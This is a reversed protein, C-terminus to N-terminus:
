AGARAPSAWGPRLRFKLSDEERASPGTRGGGPTQAAGTSRVVGCAIWAAASADGGGGPRPAVSPVRTTVSETRILERLGTRTIVFAGSTVSRISAIPTRTFGASTSFGPESESRHCSPRTVSIRMRWTVWTTVTVIGKAVAIRWESVKGGPDDVTTVAPIAPLSSRVYATVYRFPAITERFRTDVRGM